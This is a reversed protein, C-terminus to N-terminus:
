NFRRQLIDKLNLQHIIDNFDDEPLDILKLQELLKTNPFMYEPMLNEKEVEDLVYNFPNEIGMKYRDYSNLDRWLRDVPNGEEWFYPDTWENFHVVKNPKIKFKYLRGPNNHKYDSYGGYGAYHAAFSPHPSLYLYDYLGKLKDRSGHYWIENGEEDLEPLIRRKRLGGPVIRDESVLQRLIYDLVRNADDM